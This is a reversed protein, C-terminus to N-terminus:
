VEVRSGQRSHARLVQCYGLCPAALCFGRLVRSLMAQGVASSLWPQGPLTRHCDKAIQSEWASRQELWASLQDEMVGAAAAVGGAASSLPLSPAAAAASAAAADLPASATTTTSSSSDNPTVAASTDHQGALDAFCLRLVPLNPARLPAATATSHLKTLCVAALVHSTHRKSSSSSSPNLQNICLVIPHRRRAGQLQLLAAYRKLPMRERAHLLLPWAVPRLVAPIGCGAALSCFRSRLQQRSSPPLSSTDQLVAEMAAEFPRLEPSGPRADEPLRTVADSPLGVARAADVLLEAWATRRAREASLWLPTYTAFLESHDPPVELGFLDRLPAEM